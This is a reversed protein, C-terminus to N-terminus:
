GDIRRLERDIEEIQRLFRAIAKEKLAKQERLEQARSIPWRLFAHECEDCCWEPENRALCEGRDICEQCVQPLAGPDIYEM